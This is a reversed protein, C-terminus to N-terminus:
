ALTLHCLCAPFDDEGVFVTRKVTYQKQSSNLMPALEADAAFSLQQGAELNLAQAPDAATAKNVKVVLWGNVKEFHFPRKVDLAVTKTSQNFLTIVSPTTEKAIQLKASTSSAAALSSLGGVSLVSVYATGKLFKRRSTNTLKPM